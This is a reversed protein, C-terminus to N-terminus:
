LNRLPATKGSFNIIFKSVYTLMGLARKVDEKSKPTQLEKIAIIKSEDLTVDANIHVTVIKGQELYLM